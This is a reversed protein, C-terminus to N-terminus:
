INKLRFAGRSQVAFFSFKPFLQSLTNLLPSLLNQPLCGKFFNCPYPRRIEWLVLSFYLIWVSVIIFVFLCVVFFFCAFLCIFILVQLLCFSSENWCLLIHVIVLIIRQINFSTRVEENSDGLFFLVKLSLSSFHDFMKVAHKVM